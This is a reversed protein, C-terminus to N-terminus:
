CLTLHNVNMNRPDIVYDTDSVPHGVCAMRVISLSLNLTSYLLCLYHFNLQLYFFKSSTETSQVLSHCIFFNFVVQTCTNKLFTGYM